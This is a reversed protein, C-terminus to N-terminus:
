YSGEPAWSERAARLSDRDVPIPSLDLNYLPFQWRNYIHQYVKDPQEAAQDRQNLTALTEVNMDFLDHWRTSGGIKKSRWVEAVTALASASAFGVGHLSRAVSVAEPEALGFMMDEFRSPDTWLNGTDHREYDVYLAAERGSV